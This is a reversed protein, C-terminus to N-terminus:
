PRTAYGFSEIVRRAEASQLFRLYERAAPSQAGARLLVADHAIPRHLEAPVLWYSRRPARIVQSLAVFGLEAAGTRVFQYTQAVSEGRVLRPQLRERLGLRQLVELAAVGYPAVAPNAIALHTLRAARLDAGAARVSDLTPGYLALRGYAYTFRSGAVAEGEAELRRPREADAALLVDFPAGGRVQAYLQGTSGVSARVPPGGRARFRRALEAQVDAFSATVAVRVEEAEAEPTARGCAGGGVGLAALATLVALPRGWRRGGARARRGECGGGSGGHEM